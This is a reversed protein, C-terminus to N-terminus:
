GQPQDPSPPPAHVSLFRELARRSRTPVAMFEVGIRNCGRAESRMDPGIFAVRAASRFVEGGDLPFELHITRELQPEIRGTALLGGMGLLVLDCPQGEISGSLGQMEYRPFRRRNSYSM